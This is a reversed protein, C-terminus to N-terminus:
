SNANIWAQIKREAEKIAGKINTNVVAMMTRWGVLRPQNAQSGDGMVYGAYPVPNYIRAGYGGGQLKYDWGNKLDGSRNYGGPVIEGSKIKAMVYARQKDSSFTRGYAAARSVYRQGVYHRLGHADNGILYKAVAPAAIKRAAAPLKAFFNKLQDIGRVSLKIM